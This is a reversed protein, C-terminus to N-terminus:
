ALGLRVQVPSRAGPAVAVMVKETVTLSGSVPSLDRVVVTVEAAAPFLQGASPVSGWHVVVTVTRIGARAMVLVAVALVVVGPEVTPKVIVTSSVPWVGYVPM